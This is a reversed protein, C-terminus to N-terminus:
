VSRVGENEDPMSVMNSGGGYSIVTCMNSRSSWQVAIAKQVQALFPQEFNSCCYFNCARDVLQLLGWGWGRLLEVFLPCPVSLVSPAVRIM